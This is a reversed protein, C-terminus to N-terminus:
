DKNSLETSLGPPKALQRVINDAVRIAQLRIEPVATTEWLTGKCLPGMAFIRDSAFGAADLVAFEPSIDLGLGMGSMRALRSALLAEILPDGALRMGGGYGTCNIVFSTSLSSEGGTMRERITVTAFGAARASRVIRGAVVRLTGEALLSSVIRNSEPPIRHRHVDWYARVHRMFRRHECPPLSSWIIHSHPRLSDIVAHWSIGSLEAVGVQRRIASLLSRVTAPRDNSWDQQWSVGPVHVAPLLGHPSLIVIRGAFPGANLRLVQDLASLGSGLILICDSPTMGELRDESWAYPASVFDSVGTLHEPITPPYNGTALVVLRAILQSGGRLQVAIRDPCTQLSTVEDAIWSFGVDPREGVQKDLLHQMYQGFLLRPVFSDADANGDVHRLWECFHGPEDPLASMNGARVNLLHDTCSTGYAVGRGPLHDRNLVAISQGDHLRMLLHKALLTGSFGGGIIAVDFTGTSRKSLMAVPTSM